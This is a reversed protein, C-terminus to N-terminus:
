DQISIRWIKEQIQGHTRLKLNLWLPWLLRSMILFMSIIRMNSLHISLLVLRYNGNHALCAFTSFNVATVVSAVKDHERMQLCLYFECFFFSAARGRACWALSRFFSDRSFKTNAHSGFTLMHNAPSTWRCLYLLSWPLVTYYDVIWVEDNESLWFCFQKFNHWTVSILMLSRLSGYRFAISSSPM